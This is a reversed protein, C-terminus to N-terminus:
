LPTVLAIKEADLEIRQPLTLMLGKAVMTRLRQMRGDPPYFGFIIETGNRLLVSYGDTRDFHIESINEKGGMLPIDVTEYLALGDQIIRQAILPHDQFYSPAIGTIAPYDMDDPSAKRFVVGSDNIYWFSESALVLVPRQEELKISVQNPFSIEVDADRIWPHKELKREIHKASLMWTYTDKYIDSLHKVATDSVRHNGEIAIDQVKLIENARMKWSLTVAVLGIMALLLPWRSRLTLGMRSHRHPSVPLHIM